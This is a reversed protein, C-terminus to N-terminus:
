ANEVELVKVRMPGRPAQYEVWDGEAKGLLASGLPSQPSMVELGETQEEPHGVLYREAEDDDDGEYVITVISGPGISGDGNPEIIVHNDGDLLHELHRIRGEMHGQADTAAHYDGNESLDGLLRAAEIKQAVEIRGRTTLDHHEAQLREFAARSLHHKAM